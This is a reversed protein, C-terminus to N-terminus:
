ADREGYVRGKLRSSGFISFAAWCALFLVLGILFADVTWGFRVLLIAIFVPVALIYVLVADGGSVTPGEPNSPTETRARFAALDNASIVAPCGCASCETSGAPNSNDCAHCNWAYAPMKIGLTSGLRAGRM